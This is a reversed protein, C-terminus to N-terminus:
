ILVCRSPFSFSLPWQPLTLVFMRICISLINEPLFTQVEKSYFAIELALALLSDSIVKIRNPM